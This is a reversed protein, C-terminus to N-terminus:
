DDENAERSEEILDRYLEEVPVGFANALLFLDAARWQREQYRYKCFTSPSISLIEAAGALSVKHTRMEDLINRTLVRDIRAKQPYTARYWEGRTM